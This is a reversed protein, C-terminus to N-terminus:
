DDSGAGLLKMAMRGRKWWPTAAIVQQREAIGALRSALEAAKRNSESLQERLSEVEHAHSTRESEIEARLRECEAKLDVIRENLMAVVADSTTVGDEKPASAQPISKGVADAIASVAFEDLVDTKGVRKVHDALELKAIYNVITQKAVGLQEAVERKTAGM